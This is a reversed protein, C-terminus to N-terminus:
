FVKQKWQISEYNVESVVVSLYYRSGVLNATPMCDLVCIMCLNLILCRQCVTTRASPIGKIPFEMELCIIFQTPEWLGGDEASQRARENLTGCHLNFYSNCLGTYQIFPEACRM